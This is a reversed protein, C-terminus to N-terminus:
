HILPELYFLNKSKPLNFTERALKKSSPKFIDLPLSHPVIYFDKNTLLKSKKACEDMWHSPSVFTM